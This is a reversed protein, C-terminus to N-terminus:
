KFQMTNRPACSNVSATTCRSCIYTQMYNLVACMACNIRGSAVTSSSLMPHARHNAARPLPDSLPIGYVVVALTPVRNPLLKNCVTETETISTPEGQIFITLVNCCQLRRSHKIKNKDKQEPMRSASTSTPPRRQGCDRLQQVVQWLSTTSWALLGYNFSGAMTNSTTCVSM